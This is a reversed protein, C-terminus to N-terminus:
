VSKMKISILKALTKLGCKYSAAAADDDVSFLEAIIATTLPCKGATTCHHRAIMEAHLARNKGRTGSIKKYLGKTKARISEIGTGVIPVAKGAKRIMKKKKKAILYPLANQVVAAHRKPDHQCAYSGVDALINELAKVHNHTKYASRAAAGTSAVTAITSAILLSIPGAAMSAGGAVAVWSGIGAGFAPGGALVTVASATNTVSVGGKVVQATKNLRRKTKVHDGLLGTKAQAPTVVKSAKAGGGKMPVAVSSSPGSAPAIWDLEVGDDDDGDIADDLQDLVIELNAETVDEMTM